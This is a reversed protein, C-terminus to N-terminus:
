CRQAVRDALQFVIRIRPEGKLYQHEFKGALSYGSNGAKGGLGRWCRYTGPAWRLVYPKEWEVSGIAIPLPLGSWGM